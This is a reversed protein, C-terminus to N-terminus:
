PASQGFWSSCSVGYTVLLMSGAWTESSKRLGASGLAAVLVIGIPGAISNRCTRVM